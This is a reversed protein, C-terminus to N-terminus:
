SNAKSLVKEAISKPAEEYHSFEMTFVARGQTISRLTTAYGFMESLPVTARIVQADRRPEMGSIRGRRSNLNGMVDGMYDDPVVVEVRMIPELLIPNAKRAAEKLAMSGAIKFAMESSDVEHFGGDWLTVKIDEMPYGALVGNKMADQIGQSTPNIYEKPITGGVIENVFEYGKGQENPEVRIKIHAFQGHGGTQRVFRQDQEVSRTISEKYAVQPTGVNCEVKFEKKMRDILIELHLEGMGSITTQGTDADTRVQFTPDEEALKELATGMKEQDGKSKPEVAISIVPEPFTIKELVIPHQIDCLSDGTHIKKLGIAAAIDGAHVEEIDERKNASMQLLRGMREKKGTAVNLITDGTKIKGSYVRFYTLKGVFPDTQIKFALAAFPANEECSREEIADTDPHHGKVPPVDLPSPLYYTVADLLRQVGKNKFASGCMTPVISMDVTAARLAARVEEDPIAEGALFKEMLQDDYDAVAELMKERYEAAIDLMDGPIDVEEFLSGMSQENYLVAKMSILDILGTFIDGAGIPITIAVPNAGLRTRMADLVAYFDAGTRDMKNVFAIRPVNYKDAQRWVTESQPEVGGVACFLAVAGDLIRLSREVEATFDVHGPTDIINIHYDKWSTSIAASTITIGRAKEQEMWDMVAGGEHVEGMKHVRGTYYLIRESTTTKGADIHAMIGINRTNKLVEQFSM